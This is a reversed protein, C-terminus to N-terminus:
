NWSPDPPLDALDAYPAGRARLVRRWLTEHDADFVFRETGPCVVWAGEILEGELQKASWGSYGVVFTL